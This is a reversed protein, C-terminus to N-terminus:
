KCSLSHNLEFKLFAYWLCKILVNEHLAMPVMVVSIMAKIIVPLESVPNLIPITSVM